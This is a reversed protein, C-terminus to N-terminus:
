KSLLQSSPVVAKAITPTSWSLKVAANGTNDRLEVKISYAQTPKLAITAKKERLSHLTWDDVLLVGNVWLRAGEDSQLYFTYTEASAPIVNGTWRVSFTDPGMGAAPAATGWSFNLTPDVRTLKLTGFAATDYYKGTLGNPAAAPATVTPAASTASANGAADYALVRYTHKAGAPMASDVFSTTTPSGVLVGDRTVRYGTVAVNDTSAAWTIRASTPSLVAASVKTPVSPASGDAPPPVVVSASSSPSSINGAADTARVVYTYTGPSLPATDSLTTGTPTAITTGNRDVLYGTVGTDDDTDADWTLTVATASRKAVLGTPAGPPTTDPVPVIAEAPDSADSTNGAADLAIVAYEYSAGPDVAHDTFGTTQGDTTGVTVGDRQVDYEVVGVDDSSPQWALAVHDPTLDTVQLTLPPTPPQVDAQAPTHVLVEDSEPGAEGSDDVVRVRYRYDTDPTRGTDDYAVDTTTGVLVGDRLVDYHDVPGSPTQWKLKVHDPASALATPTAVQGPAGPPDVQGAFFDKTLKGSGRQSGACDTPSWSWDNTITTGPVDFAHALLGIHHQRLYALFDDALSETATGCDAAKFNWETAIVPYSASATGFKQDWWTLGNDFFYPHVGYMLQGTSDSVPLLGDLKEAKDLGDVILVNTAGLARVQDVL